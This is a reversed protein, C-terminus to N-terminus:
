PQQTADLHRGVADVQLRSKFSGTCIADYSSIPTIILKAKFSQM